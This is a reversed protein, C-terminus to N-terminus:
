GAQQSAELMLKRHSAYMEMVNDGGFLFRAEHHSNHFDIYSFKLNLSEEEDHDGRKTIGTRLEKMSLLASRIM